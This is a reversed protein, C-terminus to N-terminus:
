LTHLKVKFIEGFFKNQLTITACCLEEALLCRQGVALLLKLRKSSILGAAAPALLQHAFGRHETSTRVTFALAPRSWHRLVADLHRRTM